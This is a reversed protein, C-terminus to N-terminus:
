EPMVQGTRTMDPSSSLVALRSSELSIIALYTEDRIDPTRQLLTDATRTTQSQMQWPKWTKHELM